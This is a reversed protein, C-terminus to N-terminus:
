FHLFYKSPRWFHWNWSLMQWCTWIIRLVTYIRAGGNIPQTVQALVGGNQGWHRERYFPSSWGGVKASNSSSSNLSYAYLMHFLVRGVTLLSFFAANNNCFIEAGLFPFVSDGHDYSCPIRESTEDWSRGHNPFNPENKKIKLPFYRTLNKITLVAM